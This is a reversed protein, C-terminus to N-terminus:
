GVHAGTSYLSGSQHDTSVREMLSLITLDDCLDFLLKIILVSGGQEM